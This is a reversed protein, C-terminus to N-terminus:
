FKELWDQLRLDAAIDRFVSIARHTDTNMLRPALIADPRAPRQRPQYKADIAAKTGVAVIHDGIIAVAGNEIVRHQADETIVYRASWIWDAPEASLAGAILLFSFLRHM